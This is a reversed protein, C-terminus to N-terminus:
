HRKQLTDIFHMPRFCLLNELKHRDTNNKVTRRFTRLAQMFRTLPRGRGHYFSAEASGIQRARTDRGSFRAPDLIMVFM